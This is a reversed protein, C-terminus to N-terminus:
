QKEDGKRRSSRELINIELDKSEPKDEPTIDLRIRSIRNAAGDLVTMRFRNFEVVQGQLPIHGALHMLWGGITEVREDEIPEHIAEAVESLAMRADVVYANPGLRPIPSEEEDYEDQIEGFIEEVIDEITFM